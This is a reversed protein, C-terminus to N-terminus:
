NTSVTKHYEYYLFSEDVNMRKFGIKEYLSFAPINDNYCMLKYGAFDNIAKELLFQGYGQERYKEMVCLDEISGDDLVEISGIFEEDKSWVCIRYRDHPTLLWAEDETPNGTFIEGNTRVVTVKGFDNLKLDTTM